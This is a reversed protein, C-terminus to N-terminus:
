FNDCPLYIFFSAGKGQESKATIYGSHNEIIKKCLALGIGTGSYSMRDNLRQFITFIKSLYKQEFGIGRDSFILELYREASLNSEFPIEALSLVRSAITIKPMTESFKLSNGILNSFLQNIQLPIAKIVPLNDYHVVAGKEEILLEFDVLVNTLVANLDVAEFQQDGRSLRSYNLVAKILESMREATSNIKAFYKDVTEKNHISKELLGSFMQIKRLPEQLDHSAVYAFQELEKNQFELEANYKQMRDEALKRETLDRTVKSFGIVNNQNDHLATISVSGWFLTGDKRVRFGESMARGTSRAEEILNDPIKNELDGKTYFVRFNKGVIESEKYGKIKEAGKNWNLINGDRDLLIIVYDQVEDTMRQFREESEKLQQNKAILNRTRERVKEELTQSHIKHKSIDLVTGYMKSAEGNDDFVVKGNLRVWHVSLDPWIVRAEYFLIGAEFAKRHADLRIQRDDPHIRDSFASHDLGASNEYGFIQALRDSYVFGSRTIDWEFNGMEAAELALKNRTESVEIKKRTEVQETIEDALAMIGSISGDEDRLPEFVFKVFIKEPKGNRILELSQEKASFTEGTTFVKELLAEYGQERIDPMGTFFPKNIVEAAQKGWLELMRPNAMEVIFESGRFICVSLPAQMFLNRLQTDLHSRAMSIRLQSQVRALLEKASFPKVLYDDAGFDYDEIKTAESTRASLLLVPIRRKIPDKKLVQLLEIGDMEPLVIDSIILNPMSAAVCDLAQKGNSAVITHYDKELLKSIYSQMDSNDEVVLM